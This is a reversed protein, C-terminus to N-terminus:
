SLIEFGRQVVEEWVESSPEVGIEMCFVGQKFVGDKYYAIDGTKKHKFQRMM